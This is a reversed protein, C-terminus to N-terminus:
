SPFKGYAEPTARFFLCILVFLCVFRGLNTMKCLVPFQAPLEGAALIVVCVKSGKLVRSVVPIGWSRPSIHTVDTLM